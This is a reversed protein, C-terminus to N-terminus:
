QSLYATEGLARSTMVQCFERWDRRVQSRYHEAHETVLRRWGREAAFDVFSDVPWAGRRAAGRLHGWATVRGMTSLVKELRRIKGNWHALALRDEVPQLERLVFPRSEIRVPKLLAPSAAQVWKQVSVVREAETRWMPQSADARAQWASPCAQKVDILYNKDPSGKGQILVIYREVGLSGTGAIRRAVDIVKFFGPEARDAALTAIFSKIKKREARSAASAHVGDLRINRVAGRLETRRDLLDRRKRRRLRKLLDKVMGNATEREIWRAKGEALEAAYIEVFRQCLQLAQTRQLGLNEAALLISTSLRAVDRTCPAQIAEDFDNIDFYELRNDGKYAGFNELHLDGCIWTGPARDLESDAPWDEAFLHCTGRFFTFVDAAMARYKLQLRQPDRGRNAREIREMLSADTDNV